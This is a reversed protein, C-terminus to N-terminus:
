RVKMGGSPFIWKGKELRCYILTFCNHVYHLAKIKDGRKNRFLFLLDSEPKMQMNEVVIVHLGNISKRFDVRPIYLYTELNRPILM